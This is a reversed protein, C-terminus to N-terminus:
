TSVRGLLGLQRRASDLLPLTQAYRTASTGDFSDAGAQRCANIRRATNVRGVHLYCGRQRALKGWMALTDLKWETTGGVFIGLRHGLPVDEFDRMEMGDQVPILARRCNFLCASIWRRSLALSTSGGAVIDPVVVLDAHQGWRVLHRLFAEGDFPTGQQHASWAGNDLMWGRAWTPRQGPTLLQRWGADHLARLNRRTGTRTAYAIM